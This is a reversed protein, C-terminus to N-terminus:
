DELNKWFEVLEPSNAIAKAPNDVEGLAQRAPPKTNRGVPRRKASQKKVKEAMAEKAKAAEEAIIEDGFALLEARRLLVSANVVKDGRKELSQKVVDAAELLKDRAAKQEDTLTGGSGFRGGIEDIARHLLTTEQQRSSEELMSELKSIRDVLQSVTAKSKVLTDVIKVTNDDYGEEAFKQPDLEDDVVAETKAEPEAKTEGKPKDGYKDMLSAFKRFESESGFTELGDESIGYTEALAKIHDNVWSDTDTAETGEDEVESAGDEEEVVETDDAEDTTDAVAEETAEEEVGVSEPDGGSAIAVERETLEMEGGQEESGIALDDEFGTAM